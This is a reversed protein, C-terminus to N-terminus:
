LNENIKVPAGLYHYKEVNRKRLNNKEKNPLWDLYVANDLIEKLALVYKNHREKQGSDMKQWKDSFAVHKKRYSGKPAKVIWDPSITTFERGIKSIENIFARADKIDPTQDFAETLDVAGNEVKVKEPNYQFLSEQDFVQTGTKFKIGGDEFVIDSAKLVDDIAVKRFNAEALVQDAFMAATESVYAARAAEDAFLASMEGTGNQFLVGQNPDPERVTEEEAAQTLINDLSGADRGNIKDRYHRMLDPNLYFKDLAESQRNLKEVEAAINEPTAEFKLGMEEAAQPNRLAGKVARIKEAILSKDKAVLSAIKEQEKLYSDDFGFLDGQEAKANSPIAQNVISVFAKLEEASLKGARSLGAAQAADSGPAGESIAVAKRESIKGSLFQSKTEASGFRSLRWANIGKRALLGGNRAAEETLEPRREFYRVYDKTTGKEDKINSEVDFNQAAQASFGDAERVIQAPITAEGTRRALDLRHRGTIVEHRGDLREWIVIPPTGLREYKGGLEEGEVVGREDAGEKFNPVDRSLEIQDVPFEIIPYDKINGYDKMPEAENTQYVTRAEPTRQATEAQTVAKDIATMMARYIDGHKNRLSESESLEATVVGAMTDIGDEYLKNVVANLDKEPVVGALEERLYNKIQARNKISFAGSTTGGVLGGIVGQEFMGYLREPMKSFDITGDVLDFGINALEQLMETSGESIAGKWFNPIVKRGEKLFPMVRSLNLSELATSAAGYGATSLFEKTAEGTTYNRLDEDGTKQRYNQIGEQTESSIEQGAGAVLAGVKQAGQVAKVGAGAVGAAGGTLYGAILMQVVSAFGGGLKYAFTDKEYDALDSKKANEADIAAIQRSGARM